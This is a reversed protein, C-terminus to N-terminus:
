FPGLCGGDGMHAEQGPQGEICGRCRQEDIYLEVLTYGRKSGNAQHALELLNEGCTALFRVKNEQQTKNNEFVSTFRISTM